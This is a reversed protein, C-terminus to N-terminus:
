ASKRWKKPWRFKLGAERLIARDNDIRILGSAALRESAGRRWGECLYMSAGHCKAGYELIEWLLRRESVTLYFDRHESTPTAQAATAPGVVGASGDVPPSKLGTEKEM